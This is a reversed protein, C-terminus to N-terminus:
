GFVYHEGRKTNLETLKRRVNGTGYNINYKHTCWELNIANNNTKDEDIHNIENYNNPNNLFHSAVLRHVLYQKSISDKCLRVFYYGNAKQPKLIKEKLLAVGNYSHKKQRSLSKVRGLNSIQYIGEYKKIDKWIEEM